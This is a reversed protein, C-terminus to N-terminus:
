KERAVKTAVPEGLQQLFWVIAERSTVIEKGFRMTPLKVRDGTQRNILGKQYWRRITRLSVPRFTTRAEKLSLLKEKHPNIKM